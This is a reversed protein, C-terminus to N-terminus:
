STKIKLTKCLQFWDGNGYDRGHLSRNFEYCLSHIIDELDEGLDIVSEYGYRGKIVGDEFLYLNSKAGTNLDFYILERVDDDYWVSTSIGRRALEKIVEIVEM